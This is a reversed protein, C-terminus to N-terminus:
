MFITKVLEEPPRLGLESAAPAELTTMTM